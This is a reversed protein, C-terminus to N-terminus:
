GPGEGNGGALLPTIRRVTVRRNRREPGDTPVKLYQEGYGQTTLNEPPVGFQDSLVMAVSEARRDSLSLNDIDSGVADTHGEILFVEQPNREVARRIAEAIGALRAAQDPTVAWSGSDFTVTDIDVRPMRDRLMPSFRVEELTYRRELRDVPPATLAAYIAAEDAHETEVIYRERPIRIVPPPLDVFYAHPGGSARVPNDIIVVERGDPGRRSRRLLRGHDDVVTIIRVGGPREVVTVTDRGRQQVQIDRANLGFRTVEDHRIITRGDERIITRDPERIITRNGEQVQQRQSQLDQVRRSRWEEARQRQQLAEQRDRAIERVPAAAGAPAPPSQQATPHPPQAGAAPPAGTPQQATPHPAPSGQRQMAAPPAAGPQQATPRQPAPAPSQATPAQPAPPPTQAAPRQPAGPAPPAGPGQASPHAP